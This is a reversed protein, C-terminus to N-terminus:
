SHQLSQTEDEAVKVLAKLRSEEEALKQKADSKIKSLAKEGESVKDLRRNYDILLGIVATIAVVAIGWPNSAMAVKLKKLLAISKEQLFIKAKELTIEHTTIYNKAKIYGTYLLIASGTSIITVGYDNFIDILANLTKIMMTGTSTVSMLPLLKEGLAVKVEELKKRKKELTAEETTNQVNSEKIVSTADEYVEQAEQQKLKVLEINKALTTLTATAGDGQINMEKFIPALVDMKGLSNLHELLSIFATNIDTKVLQTFSSIELGAVEAIKAPEQFMKNLLRSTATASKEVNQGNANLVAGYAAIQPISMEAMAGVGALRNIYETIYPAQAVMNQSLDNVVSGVAMMSGEVGLKDKDGFITSLKFITETAGEGLEDLAVNIIDAAKAYQVLEDVSRLGGRGGEETLQLM